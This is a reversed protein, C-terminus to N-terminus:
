RAAPRTGQTAASAAPTSATAAPETVPVQYTIGYNPKPFALARIWNIATRVRPDSPGSLRHIDVHPHPISANAYPLSYQLLLSKEPNDRDIMKGDRNAYMSLIYFNTYQQEPTTAPQVLRFNGARRSISAHCEATACNQLVYNSVGTGSRYAALAAPDSITVIGQLYKLNGSDKILRLQAPFNAPALFRDHAAKSKDGTPRNMIVNNWFEELTKGEFRGTVRENPAMEMARLINIQPPTLLPIRGPQTVPAPGTARGLLSALADHMLMADVNHPDLLLAQNNAGQAEAYKGQQYLANAKEVQARAAAQNEASVGHSAPRSSSAAPTATLAVGLGLACAVTLVALSLRRRKGPRRVNTM